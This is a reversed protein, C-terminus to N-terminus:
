ARQEFNVWLSPPFAVIGTSFAAADLLKAAAAADVAVGNADAALSVNFSQALATVLMFALNRSFTEGACLRKGAGFPLTTDLRVALRGTSRDLFREPRFRLPEPYQKADWHAAQLNTVVFAGKPVDYGALQTAELACHPFGNPVPSHM